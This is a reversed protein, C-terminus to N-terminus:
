PSGPLSWGRLGRSLKSSADTIRYPDFSESLRDKLALSFTILEGSGRSLGSWSICSLLGALTTCGAPDSDLCPGLVGVGDCASDRSAASFRVSSINALPALRLSTSFSKHAEM